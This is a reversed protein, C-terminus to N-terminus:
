GRGRRSPLKASGRCPPDSGVEGTWPCADRHASRFPSYSISPSVLRGGWEFSPFVRELTDIMPECIIPVLDGRHLVSKTLADEVSSAVGQLGKHVDPDRANVAKLVDLGKRLSDAFAHIANATDSSEKSLGFGGPTFNAESFGWMDRAAADFSAHAKDNRSWHDKPGTIMQSQLRVAGGLVLYGFGHGPQFSWAWQIRKQEFLAKGSPHEAVDALIPGSFPDFAAVLMPRVLRVPRLQLQEVLYARAETWTWLDSAVHTILNRFKETLHGLFQIQQVNETLM